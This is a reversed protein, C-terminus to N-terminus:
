IINVYKQEINEFQELRKPTNSDLIRQKLKKTCIQHIYSANQLNNASLKGPSTQTLYEDSLPTYGIYIHRILCCLVDTIANVVHTQKKNKGETKIWLIAWGYIDNDKLICFVVPHYRRFVVFVDWLLLKVVFVDNLLLKVVFSVHCVLGRSILTLFCFHLYTKILTECSYFHILYNQVHWWRIVLYHFVITM